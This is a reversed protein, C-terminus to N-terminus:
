MIGRKVYFWLCSFFVCVCMCGCGCEESSIKISVLPSSECHSFLKWNFSFYRNLRQNLLVNFDNHNEKQINKERKKGYTIWYILIKMESYITSAKGSELFCNVNPFITSIWHCFLSFFVCNLSLSRAAKLKIRVCNFYLERAWNSYNVCMEFVYFFLLDCEFSSIEAKWNKETNEQWKQKTGFQISQVSVFCQRYIIRSQKKTSIFRISYIIRSVSQTNWSWTFWSLYVVSFYLKLFFVCFFLIRSMWQFLRRRLRESFYYSTRKRFFKSHWPNDFWFSSRLFISFFSCFIIIFYCCSYLFISSIFRFSYELSSCQHKNITNITNSFVLAVHRAHFTFFRRRRIVLNLSNLRLSVSTCVCIFEDRVTVVVIWRM